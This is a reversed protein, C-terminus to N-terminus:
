ALVREKQQQRGHLSVCTQAASAKAVCVSCGCEHGPNLQMLKDTKAKWSTSPKQIGLVGGVM